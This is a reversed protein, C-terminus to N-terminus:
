NQANLRPNAHFVWRFFVFFGVLSTNKNKTKKLEKVYVIKEKDGNIGMILHAIDM